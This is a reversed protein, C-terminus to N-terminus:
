LQLDDSKRWSDRTKQVRSVLEQAAMKNAPEIFGHSQDDPDQRYKLGFHNLESEDIEWLVTRKRMLRTLSMPRLNKNICPPTVSVGGTDPHTDGNCDTEIDFADDKGVSVGQIRVGLHKSVHGIVPLGDEAEEMDRYLKLM